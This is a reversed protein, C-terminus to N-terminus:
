PFVSRGLPKMVLRLPEEPTDPWSCGLFHLFGVVDMCAPQFLLLLHGLLLWLSAALSSPTVQAHRLLLHGRQHPWSVRASSFAQVSAEPTSPLLM